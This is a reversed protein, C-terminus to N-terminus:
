QVPRRLGARNKWCSKLFAANGFFYRRWLRRPETMLRFLWELGIHGLWEPAMPKTGASFDFAAGVAVATVSCSRAIRAAEFDQKPTGLGIWVIQADTRRIQEDRITLEEPLPPRFSPALKGVINVHPYRRLLNVELKELVEDTSGLLFHRIGSTQGAEMVSEFAQPGRVQHVRPNHGALRSFWSIPKGDALTHGPGNLLEKYSNDSEALAVTYANAFYVPVGGEPGVALQLITEVAEAPAATSFNLCAVQKMLNM